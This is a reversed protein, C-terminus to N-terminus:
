TRCLLEPWREPGARQDPDGALPRYAICRRPPWDIPHYKRGAGPLAASEPAFCRGSADMEACSSCNRRDDDTVDRSRHHLAPMVSFQADGYPHVDTVDTVGLFTSFGHIAINAAGSEEEKGSKGQGEINAKASTAPAVLTCRADGYPDRQLAATAPPTAFTAPARERLLNTLAEQNM